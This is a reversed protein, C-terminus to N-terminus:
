KCSPCGCPSKHGQFRMPNQCCLNASKAAEWIPLEATKGCGRCRLLVIVADWRGSRTPSPTAM